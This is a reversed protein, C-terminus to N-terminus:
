RDMWMTAPREMGFLVAWGLPHRWLRHLMWIRRVGALPVSDGPMRGCRAPSPQLPCVPSLLRWLLRLAAMEQWWPCSDVASLLGCPMEMFVLDEPVVTPRVAGIRSRREVPGCGRLCDLALPRVPPLPEPVSPTCGTRRLPVPFAM